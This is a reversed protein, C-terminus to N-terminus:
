GCCVLMAERAARVEDRPAQLDPVIQQQYFEAINVLDNTHTAGM